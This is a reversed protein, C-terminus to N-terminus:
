SLPPGRPVPTNHATASLHRPPDCLPTPESAALGAFVPTRHSIVPDPSGIRQCLLCSESSHGTRCGEFDVSEIHALREGAAVAEGAHALPLVVAVGTYLLLLFRPGLRGSSGSELAAARRGFVFDSLM